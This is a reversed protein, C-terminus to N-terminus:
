MESELREFFEDMPMPKAYYFGQVMDCGISKLFEVQEITEVGECIVRKNLEKAMEVTKQIIIESEKSSEKENLFEKDLKIVDAPVDKLVNLSSYGSGFDDISVQLNLQKLQHMIDIMAKSDEFFLSETLEFELLEPPVNYRDMMHEIKSIYQEDHLLYRSQNISINVNPQHERIRERLTKCVVELVYFDVQTIFGNQEFVPIFDDPFMFGKDPKQWRTLAEAAVIKGTKLDYKPQMFVKFEGHQLANEM